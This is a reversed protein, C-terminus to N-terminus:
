LAPVPHTLPLAYLPQATQVLGLSTGSHEQANTRRHSQAKVDLRDSKPAATIFLRKGNVIILTDTIFRSQSVAQGLPLGHTM